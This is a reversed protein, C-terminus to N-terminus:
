KLEGCSFERFCKYSHRGVKFGYHLLFPQNMTFFDSEGPFTCFSIGIRPYEDLDMGDDCGCLVKYPCQIIFDDYGFFQQVKVLIEQCILQQRTEIHEMPLIEM